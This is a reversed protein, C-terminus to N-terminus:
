YEIAREIHIEAIASTILHTLESRATVGTKAFINKIHSRVTWISLAAQTAIAQDSLGRMIWLCVDAEKPTLAFRRLIWPRDIVLKAKPNLQVMVYKCAPDDGRLVSFRWAGWNEARAAGNAYRGIQQRLAQQDHAHLQRCIERALANAHILGMAENLVFCANPHHEWMDHWGSVRSRLESLSRANVLANTFHPKLLDLLALERPGFPPRAAGRWIRLDGINLSGDYAYLNIGWKLGDVKLFDNYFETKELDAQPMIENVLTASHRAQLLSTIPDCYQFHAQYHDVNAPSMNVFAVDEFQQLPENWAFSALMDAQTLKLLDDAISQRLPRSDTSRGLKDIIGLLQQMETDTTRYMANDTPTATNQGNASRVAIAQHIVIKLSTSRM